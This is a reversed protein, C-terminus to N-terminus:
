CGAKGTRKTREARLKETGQAVMRDLEAIKAVSLAGLSAEKRWKFNYIDIIIQSTKHAM